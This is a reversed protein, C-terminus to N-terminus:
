TRDLQLGPGGAEACVPCGPEPAELLRRLTKQFETLNMWVTIGGQPFVIASQETEFGAPRKEEARRCRM